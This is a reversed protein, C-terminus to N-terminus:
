CVMAGLWYGAVVWLGHSHVKDSAFVGARLGATGSSEVHLLSMGEGGFGWVFKANIM